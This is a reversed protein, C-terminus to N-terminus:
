QILSLSDVVAGTSDRVELVTNVAPRALKFSVESPGEGEHKFRGGKLEVEKGIYNVLDVSRSQKQTDLMTTLTKNVNLMQELSNFHALRSAMETSDEPNLPDQNQLQTVFLKLFDDKDLNNKPARLKKNKDDM